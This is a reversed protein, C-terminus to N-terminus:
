VLSWLLYPICFGLSIISKDPLNLVTITGLMLSLESFLIIFIYLGFVYHFSISDWWFCSCYLLLSDKHHKWPLSLSRPIKPYMTMLRTWIFNIASALTHTHTHTHTHKSKRVTFGEESQVFCIYHWLKPWRHYASFINRCWTGNNGRWLCYYCPGQLHWSHLLIGIFGPLVKLILLCSKYVKSFSVTFSLLM